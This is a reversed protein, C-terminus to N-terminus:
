YPIKSIIISDKWDNQYIHLMDCRGLIMLNYFSRAWENRSSGKMFEDFNIFRQSNLSQLIKDQFELSAQNPQPTDLKVPSISLLEASSLIDHMFPIEEGQDYIEMMDILDEKPNEFVPNLQSDKYEFPNIMNLAADESPSSQIGRPYEIDPIQESDLEKWRYDVYRSFLEKFSDNEQRTFLDPDPEKRKLIAQLPIVIDESSRSWNKYTKLDIETVEDCVKRKRKKKHTQLLDFEPKSDNPLIHIPTVFEHMGSINVMPSFDPASFDLTMPDDFYNFELPKMEGISDRFSLSDRKAIQLSIDDNRAIAVGRFMETSPNSLIGGTLSLRAGSMYLSHRKSRRRSNLTVDSLREKKVTTLGNKSLLKDGDNVLIEVQRLYLLCIGKLLYVHFRLLNVTQLVTRVIQAISIKVIKSRNTYKHGMAIIWPLRLAPNILICQLDAM